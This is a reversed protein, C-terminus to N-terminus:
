PLAQQRSTYLLPADARAVLTGEVQSGDRSACGALMLTAVGALVACAALMLTAVNALVSPKLPSPRLSKRSTM